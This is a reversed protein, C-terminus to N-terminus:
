IPVPGLTVDGGRERVLEVVVEGGKSIVSPLAVQGREFGSRRVVFLIVTAAVLGALSVAL